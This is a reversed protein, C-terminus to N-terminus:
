SPARKCSRPRSRRCRGSGWGACARRSLLSGAVQAPRDAKDEWWSAMSLRASGRRRGKVDGGTGDNYPADDSDMAYFAGNPHVSPPFRCNISFVVKITDGV